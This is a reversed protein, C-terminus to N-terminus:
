QGPFTFIIQSPRMCWSACLLYTVSLKKGLFLILKQKLHTYSYAGPLQPKGTKSFTQRAGEYEKECISTKLKIESLGFKELVEATILTEQAVANLHGSCFDEWLGELIKLSSCEVTIVLSGLDCRKIDVNLNDRLYTNLLELPIGSSLISGWISAETSPHSAEEGAMAEQEQESGGAAQSPQCSRPLIILNFVIQVPVSIFYFFSSILYNISVIICVIGSLKDHRCSFSDPISSCRDSIHSEVKCIPAACFQEKASIAGGISNKDTFLLGM